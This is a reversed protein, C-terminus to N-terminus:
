KKCFTEALNRAELDISYVKELSDVIKESRVMRNMTSEVCKAIETFGLERRIFHAVAVENAANYAIPLVEGDRFAEYALSIAPFLATDPRRFTLGSLMTLDLSPLESIIREPYTLAYQIPLRMDAYGLQAIISGDKFEVMSHIISQPHILIDIRDADLGFLWGAEMLELGKNFLSSSDITIKNGMSWTPHQMAMEPTVVSLEEYSADKFMGGSATLILRKVDEKRGASLCQFIASQESDVPIITGGYNKLVNDIVHHACVISEKNALAVSKGAKLASILPALGAFGSVGNVVIDVEPLAAMMNVDDGSVVIIEPHRERISKAAESSYMGVFNPHFIDIQALMLEVNSGAVLAKINFEDKHFQAVSLTQKGISGTSGFVALNKM